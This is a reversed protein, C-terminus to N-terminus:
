EDKNTEAEDTEQHYKPCCNRHCCTRGCPLLGDETEHECLLIDGGAIQLAHGEVLCTSLKKRASMYISQVTTRAVNMQAACEEQNLQEYDILRLTEYEDITMVVTEESSSNKPVFETNQPMCCVRRWKKPRPM